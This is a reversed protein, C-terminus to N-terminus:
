AKLQALMAEVGNPSGQPTRQVIRVLGAWITPAVESLPRLPESCSWAALSDHALAGMQRCMDSQSAMSPLFAEPPLGGLGRLEEVDREMRIREFLAAATEMERRAQRLIPAAAKLPDSYM